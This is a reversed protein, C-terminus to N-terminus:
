LIVMLKELNMILIQTDKTFPFHELYVELPIELVERENACGYRSGVAKIQHKGLTEADPANCTYHIFGNIERNYQTIRELEHLKHGKMIKM